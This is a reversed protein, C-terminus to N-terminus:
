RVWCRLATMSRLSLRWRRPALSPLRRWAAWSSSESSSIRSRRSATVTRTRSAARCLYRRGSMGRADKNPLLPAHGVEGRGSGSGLARRPVVRRRPVWSGMLSARTTSWLSTCTTAVSSSWGHKRILVTHYRVRFLRVSQRVGASLTPGVSPEQGAIGDRSRVSERAASAQLARPHHRGANFRKDSRGDGVVARCVDRDPPLVDDLVAREEVPADALEVLREVHMAHRM